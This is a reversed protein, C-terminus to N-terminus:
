LRESFQKIEDSEETEFEDEFRMKEELERAKLEEENLKDMREKIQFRMSLFFSVAALVGSVFAGDSNNGRWLFYAAIGALIVAVIQFIREM